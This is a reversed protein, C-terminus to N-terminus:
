VNWRIGSLDVNGAVPLNLLITGQNPQGRGPVHFSAFGNGDLDAANWVVGSVPRRPITWSPLGTIILQVGANSVYVGGALEMNQEITNFRWKATQYGVVQTTQSNFQTGGEGFAGIKRWPYITLGMLNLSRTVSGVSSAIIVTNKPFDTEDIVGPNTPDFYGSGFMYSTLVLRGFNRWNNGNIEKTEDLEFALAGWGTGITVPDTNAAYPIQIGYVPDVTIFDHRNGTLYRFIQDGDPPMAFGIFGTRAVVNGAVKVPIPIYLLREGSTNTSGPSPGWRLHGQMTPDFSDSVCDYGDPGSWNIFVGEKMQVNNPMFRILELGEISPEPAGPEVSRVYTEGPHMPRSDIIMGRNTTSLNAATFNTTGAPINLLGSVGFSGGVGITPNTASLHVESSIGISMNALSINDAAAGGLVLLAGVTLQTLGSGISAQGILQVRCCALRMNTSLIGARCDFVVYMDTQVDVVSVTNGVRNHSEITLTATRNFHINGIYIDSNIDGADLVITVPADFFRNNIKEDLFAQFDDFEFDTAPAGSVMEYTGAVGRTLADAKLPFFEEAEQLSISSGHVIQFSTAATSWIARDGEYVVQGSLGPLAPTAPITYPATPDPTTMVWTFGNVRVAAQTLDPVNTAANWTGQYAAQTSITTDVYQKTAVGLNATPDGGPLTVKRTGRDIVIADTTAGKTDATGIGYTTDDRLGAYWEDKVFATGASVGSVAHEILAYGTETGTATWGANRLVALAEPPDAMPVWINAQKALNTSDEVTATGYVHLNDLSTDGDVALTGDVKLNGPGTLTGGTLPLMPTVVVPATVWSSGSWVWRAVAPPPPFLEGLVPSSPFNIPM